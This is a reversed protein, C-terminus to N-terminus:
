RTLSNSSVKWRSGLWWSGVGLFGTLVLNITRGLLTPREFEKCLSAGGWYDRHQDACESKASPSASPWHGTLAGPNVLVPM